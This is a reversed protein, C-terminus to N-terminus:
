NADANAETIRGGVCDERPLERLTALKSTVYSVGDSTPRM